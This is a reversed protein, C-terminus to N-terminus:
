AAGRHRWTSHRWAKRNSSTACESPLFTIIENSISDVAAVLITDHTKLLVVNGRPSSRVVVGKGAAADRELAVMEEASLALAYRDWARDQAHALRAKLDYKKSM